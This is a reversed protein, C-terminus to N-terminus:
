TDEKIALSKKYIFDTICYHIFAIVFGIFSAFVRFILNFDMLIISYMFAILLIISSILIKPTQKKIFVNIFHVCLWAISFFSPLFAIFFIYSFIPFEKDRYAEFFIHIFRVFVILSIGIWCFYLISLGKKM